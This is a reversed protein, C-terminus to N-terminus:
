EAEGATFIAAGYYQYLPDFPSAAGMLFVAISMVLLVPVAVLLRRLIMAGVGSTRKSGTRSSITRSATM